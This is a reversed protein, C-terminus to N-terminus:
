AYKKLMEERSIAKNKKKLVEIAEHYDEQDQIKEALVGVIYANQSIGQFKSEEKVRDLLSKKLRISTNVTAISSM